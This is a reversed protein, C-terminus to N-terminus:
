RVFVGLGRGDKRSPTATLGILLAGPWRALLETRIKTVYLHAEDIVIVDPNLLKLKHNRARLTDISAIQVRAYANHGKDGALIYAHAVGVAQLKGAAQHVLERRPAIFLVSRGASVERQIIAAAIVTKGSGTPAVILIKRRGALVCNDFKAIACDQYPRLTPASM